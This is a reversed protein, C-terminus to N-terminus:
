NEEGDFCAVVRGYVGFAFCRLSCNLNPFYIGQLSSSTIWCYEEEFKKNSPIIGLFQLTKFRKKARYTLTVEEAPTMPEKDFDRLYKDKLAENITMNCDNGTEIFIAKRFHTKLESNIFSLLDKVKHASGEINDRIMTTHTRFSTKRFRYGNYGREFVPCDEVSYEILLGNNDNNDVPHILPRKTTKHITRRTNITGVEVVINLGNLRLLAVPRHNFIDGKYLPNNIDAGCNRFILTESEQTYDIFDNYVKLKNKIEELM